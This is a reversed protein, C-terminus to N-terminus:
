KGKSLKQVRETVEGAEQKLRTKKQMLDDFAESSLEQALDHIPIYIKTKGFEQELLFRKLVRAFSLLHRRHPLSVKCVVKQSEALSELAKQTPGKKLGYQALMDSVLQVSYPRNQENIFALM